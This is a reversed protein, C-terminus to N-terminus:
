RGRESDAGISVGTKGGSDGDPGPLTFVFRAGGGPRNEAWLRGGHAEVLGRSLALGLGLGNGSQADAGRYFADFIRPMAAQSIGPGRDAVEIRVRGTEARVVIDIVTGDPSYRAANEVLNAIVQEIEVPDLLVAPLEAPVDLRLRDGGPSRALRGVAERVVEGPDYYERAPVLSGSQLRNMDLLNGVIRDLRRAEAEIARAFAEREVDTWTVETDRLSGAAAIISALPTRLEHSVADLLSTRLLDTRRLIEAELAARRATAREVALALQTTTAVLLRNQGRDFAPAGTEVAVLLWGIHGAAVRLEARRLVLAAQHGISTPPRVMLWRSSDAPRRGDSEGDSRTLVQSPHSVIDINGLFARGEEDGVVGAEAEERMPGDLYIKVGRAGLESSLREAIQSWAAGLDPRSSLQVLDYLTQTERQRAEAERARRVADGALQGAILATALFAGLVIWGEPEAVTFTYRPDVFLFNLAGFGVLAALVAAGRGHRVATILVAMLLLLPAAFPGSRGLLTAAASFLGVALIAFALGWWAGLRDSASTRVRGDYTWSPVGGRITLRLARQDAANGPRISVAQNHRGGPATRGPLALM